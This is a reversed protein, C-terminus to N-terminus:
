KLREQAAARLILSVTNPHAYLEGKLSLVVRVKEVNFRRYRQYMVRHAWKRETKKGEAFEPVMGSEHIRVGTLFASVAATMNM